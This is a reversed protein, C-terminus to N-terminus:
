ADREHEQNRALDLMEDESLQQAGGAQEQVGAGMEDDRRITGAVTGRPLKTEGVIRAVEHFALHQGRSSSEVAVRLYRIPFIIAEINSASIDKESAARWAVTEARDLSRGIEEASLLGKERLAEALATVAVYLGELQLNATNM